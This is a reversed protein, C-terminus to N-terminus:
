VFLRHERIELFRHRLHEPDDEALLADPLALPLEVIPEQAVEAIVDDHGTSIIPIITVALPESLAVARHQSMWCGCEVEDASGGLRLDLRHRLADANQLAHGPTEFGAACREHIKGFLQGVPQSLM